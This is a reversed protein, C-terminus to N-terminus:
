DSTFVLLNCSQYDKIFFIVTHHMISFFIRTATGTWPIKSIGDLTLNCAKSYLCRHHLGKVSFCNSNHKLIYVDTTSNKGLYAAPKLIGPFTPPPTWKLCIKLRTLVQWNYRLFSLSQPYWNKKFCNTSASAVKLGAHNLFTTPIAAAVKWNFSFTHLILNKWQFAFVKASFILLLNSCYQLPLLSFLM